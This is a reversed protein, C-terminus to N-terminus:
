SILIEPMIYISIGLVFGGLLDSLYHHQDVVRSASVAAVIVVLLLVIDLEYRFQKAFFLALFVIRATHFSPFSSARYQSLFSDQKPLRDRSRFCLLRLPIGILYLLVFGIALHLGQSILGLKLFFLILLLHLPYTGLSSIKELNYKLESLARKNSTL